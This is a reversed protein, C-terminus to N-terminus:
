DSFTFGANNTRPNSLPSPPICIMKRSTSRSPNANGQDDFHEDKIDITTVIKNGLHVNARDGRAMNLFPLLYGLVGRYDSKVMPINIGQGGGELPKHGIILVPDIRNIRIGDNPPPFVVEQESSDPDPTNVPSNM